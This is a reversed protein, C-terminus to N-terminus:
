LKHLLILSICFLICFLYQNRKGSDKASAQPQSNIPRTEESVKAEFKKRSKTKMETQTQIAIRTTTELSLTRKM